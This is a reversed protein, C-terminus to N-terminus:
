KKKAMEDIAKIVSDYDDKHMNLVDELVSEQVGDVATIWAEITRHTVETSKSLDIAGFEVSGGATPKVKTGEFFAGNIHETDRGTIWARISVVHKNVPTEFTTIEATHKAM